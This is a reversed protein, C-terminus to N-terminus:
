REIYVTGIYYARYSLGHVGNNLLTREKREKKRNLDRTLEGPGVSGGEAGEPGGGAGARLTGPRTLHWWHPLRKEVEPLLGLQSWPYILRHKGTWYFVIWKKKNINKREM